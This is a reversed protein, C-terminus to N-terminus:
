TRRTIPLALLFSLLPLTKQSHVSAMQEVSLATPAAYRRLSIGPVEVLLTESSSVVLPIIVPQPLCQSDDFYGDPSKQNRVFLKLIQAQSAELHKEVAIRKRFYSRGPLYNREMVKTQHM